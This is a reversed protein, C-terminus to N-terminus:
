NIYIYIYIYIYTHTHTHKYLQAVLSTSRLRGAHIFDSFFYISSVCVCM